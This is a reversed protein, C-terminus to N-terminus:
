PAKSKFSTTKSAPNSIRPISGIPGDTLPRGRKEMIAKHQEATIGFGLYPTKSPKGGFGINGGGEINAMSPVMICM